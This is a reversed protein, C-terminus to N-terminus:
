TSFRCGCSKGSCKKGMEIMFYPAYNGYEQPLPLISGQRPDGTWVIQQMDVKNTLEKDKELEKWIEDSRNCYRSWTLVFYLLKPKDHYISVEEDIIIIGNINHM